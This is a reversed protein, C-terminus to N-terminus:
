PTQGFSVSGCMFVVVGNPVENKPLPRVGPLHVLPPLKTGDAYAALTVTLREKEHGTTAVLIQPKFLWFRRKRTQSAKLACIVGDMLSDTRIFYLESRHTIGPPPPLKTGDAYAALTVTLREKEHGTTAVRVEKEGREALTSKGPMEFWVPTEDATTRTVPFTM